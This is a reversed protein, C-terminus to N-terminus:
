FWSVNTFKYPMEGMAHERNVEDCLHPLYTVEHKGLSINDEMM